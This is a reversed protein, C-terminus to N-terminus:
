KNLRKNLQSKGANLLIKSLPKAPPILKGDEWMGKSIKGTKSKHEGFGNM